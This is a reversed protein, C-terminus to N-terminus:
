SCLTTFCRRTHSLTLTHTHTIFSLSLLPLTAHHKQGEAGTAGEEGVQNFIPALLSSRSAPSPAPDGGLPLGAAHLASPSPALPSLPFSSLSSLAAVTPLPPLPAAATVVAAAAEPDAASAASLHSPLVDQLKALSVAVTVLGQADLEALRPQALQVLVGLFHAVRDESPKPNLSKCRSWVRALAALAASLAITDMGQWEAVTEPLLQGLERMTKAQRLRNTVRRCDHPSPGFLEMDIGRAGTVQMHVAHSDAESLLM